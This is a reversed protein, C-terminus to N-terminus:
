VRYVSWFEFSFPAPDTEGVEPTFLALGRETGTVTSRLFVKDGAAAM